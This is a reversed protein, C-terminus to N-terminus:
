QWGSVKIQPIRLIQYKHFTTLLTLLTHGLAFQTFHTFHLFSLPLHLSPPLLILSLPTEQAPGDLWTDWPTGPHGMAVEVRWQWQRNQGM